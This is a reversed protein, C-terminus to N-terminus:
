QEKQADLLKLYLGQNAEPTGDIYFKVTDGVITIGNAGADKLAQADFFDVNLCDIVIKNRVYRIERINAFDLASIYANFDISAGIPKRLLVLVLVAVGVFVVIMGLFLIIVWIAM